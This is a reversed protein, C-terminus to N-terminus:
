SETDPTLYPRFLDLRDLAAQIPDLWADERDKARFRFYLSRLFHEANAEGLAEAQEHPGIRRQFRDLWDQVATRGLRGSQIVRYAAWALRDDERYGLPYPLTALDYIASLVDSLRATPTRPHGGVAGLADATHAVAHAWGKGVVYGRWDREARAYATVRDLAWEVLDAPLEGVRFDAELVLPVMLVSFSRRFVSDTGREGVAAFLHGDDLAARLLAMREDLTLRGEVMLREMLTLALTDRVRPDPSAFEELLAEALPGAPSPPWGVGATLRELAEVGITM